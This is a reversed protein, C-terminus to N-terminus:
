LKIEKDFFRECQAINRRLKKRINSLRKQYKKEAIDSYYQRLWCLVASLSFSGDQNRPLGSRRWATITGRTVNLLVALQQQNVFRLVMRKALEKTQQRDRWRLVAPLSFSGDQNRPMGARVWARITPTGKGFLAALDSECVNAFKVIEV